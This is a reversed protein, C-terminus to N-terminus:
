PRFGFTKKYIVHRAEVFMSNIKCSHIVNCAALYLANHKGLYHTIWQPPLTWVLGGIDGRKRGQMRLWFTKWREYHELWLIKRKGEGRPKQASSRKAGWLKEALIPSTASGLHNGWKINRLWSKGNGNIWNPGVSLQPWGKQTHTIQKPYSTHQCQSVTLNSVCLPPTIPENETKIEGWMEEAMRVFARKGYETQYQTDLGPINLKIGFSQWPFDHVTIGPWQHGTTEGALSAMMVWLLASLWMCAMSWVLVSYAM